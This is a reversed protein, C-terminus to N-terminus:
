NLLDADRKVLKSKTLVHVPFGYDVFLQLAARTLQYQKEVPAYPDNM